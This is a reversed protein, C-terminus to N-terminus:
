NSVSNLVPSDLILTVPGDNVFDVEMHAQFRGSQTPIGLSHSIEIAKEYLPKATEPPAARAFSPRLGKQTDAYLTFQSVILHGGGVDSLSLNMKGNQDEFIRLQIIKRIMWEVERETDERGIGLLTLIGARISGSVTRSTDRAVDRAVSTMEKGDAVSEVIRVQAQSVRQIVARMHYETSDDFSSDLVSCGIGLM